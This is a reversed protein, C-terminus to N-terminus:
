KKPDGLTEKKSASMGFGVTKCSTDKKEETKAPQTEQAPQVEAPTIVKQDQQAPQVQQMQAANVAPVPKQVNAPQQVTNTQAAALLSFGALFLLTALIKKM